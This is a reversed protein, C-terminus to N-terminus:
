KEFGSVEFEDIAHLQPQPLALDPDDMRSETHEVLSWEYADDTPVRNKLAVAVARRRADIENRTLAFSHVLIRARALDKTPTVTVSTHKPGVIHVVILRRVEAPVAVGDFTRASRPGDFIPEHPLEVRLRSLAWTALSM